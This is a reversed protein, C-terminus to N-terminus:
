NLSNRRLGNKSEKKKSLKYIVAASVGAVILIAATSGNTGTGAGPATFTAVIINIRNLGIDVTGTVDTYGTKQLIYTHTGTPLDPIIAPTKADYPQGDIIIDAKDPTSILKLSGTGTGGSSPIMVANVEATIDAIVTVVGTFDNYGSFKLTFPYMGPSINDLTQPTKGKAQDNLFIEAGIPLSSFSIKGTTVDPPPILDGTATVTQNALVNITGNYDNYGPYTYKYTHLGESVNFYTLPTQRGLSRGDVWILPNGFQFSSIFYINGVSPPVVCEGETLWDLPAETNFGDPYGPIPDMHILWGAGAPSLATASYKKGDTQDTLCVRSGVTIVM